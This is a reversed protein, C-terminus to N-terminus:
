IGTADNLFDKFKDGFASELDLHLKIIAGERPFANINDWDIFKVKDDPTIVINSLVWDGHAYPATTNINEICATYIKNFFDQDHKFTNALTGKIVNMKLTMTNETYSYDNYIEPAYIKLLEVHHELWLLDKFYWTKYYNQGDFFVARKKFKNEKILDM